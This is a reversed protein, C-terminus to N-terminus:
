NSWRWVVKRRDEYYEQLTNKVSDWYFVSNYDDDSIYYCGIRKGMKDYRHHKPNVWQMGDKRTYFKVDYPLEDGYVDLIKTNSNKQHNIFYGEIGSNKVVIISTYKGRNYIYNSHCLDRDRDNMFIKEINGCQFNKHANTHEDYSKVKYKNANTFADEFNDYKFNKNSSINKEYSKIKLRNAYNIAAIERKKANDEDEAKRIAKDEDTIIVEEDAWSGFEGSDLVQLVVEGILDAVNEKSLTRHRLKLMSEGSKSRKHIVSEESDTIQRADIEESFVRSRITTM